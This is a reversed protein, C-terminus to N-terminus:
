GCVSSSSFRIFDQEVFSFWYVTLTLLTPDAPYSQYPLQTLTLTLTLFPVGMSTLSRQAPLQNRHVPQWGAPLKLGDVRRFAAM